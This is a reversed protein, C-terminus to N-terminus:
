HLGSRGVGLLYRLLWPRFSAPQKAAIWAQLESSSHFPQFCRKCRLLVPDMAPSDDDESKWVINLNKILCRTLTSLPSTPPNSM